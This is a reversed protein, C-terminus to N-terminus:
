PGFIATVRPDLYNPLWIRAGLPALSATVAPHTVQVPEHSMLEGPHDAVLNATIRGWVWVSGDSLMAANCPEGCAIAVVDTLTPIPEPAPVYVINPSAFPDVVGWGYVFGDRTLALRYEQFAAIEVLAELGDIQRPTIQVDVSASGWDCNMAGWTWVTGENALVLTHGFGVAVARIIPM